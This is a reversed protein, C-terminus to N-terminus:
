RPGAGPGRFQRREAMKAQLKKFQEPSLVKQIKAMSAAQVKQMAARKSGMDGPAMFIKRMQPMTATQIAIVKKQQDPTMKLEKALKAFEEKRRQEMQKRMEPSM